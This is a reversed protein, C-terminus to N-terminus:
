IESDCRSSDHDTAALRRLYHQFYLGSCHSEYLDIKTVTCSDLITPPSTDVRSFEEPSFSARVDLLASNMAKSLFPPARSADNERDQINITAQSCSYDDRISWIREAFCISPRDLDPM